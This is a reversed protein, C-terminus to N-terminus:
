LLLRSLVMTVLPLELNDVGDTLGEFLATGFCVGAMSLWATPPVSALSLSPTESLLADGYTVCLLPLAGAVAACFGAGLTGSLTKRELAENDALWSAPLVPRLLTGLKPGGVTVGVTAAAADLIGLAGLGPLFDRWSVVYWPAATQFHFVARHNLVVSLGCGAMLYLHTRVLAADRTDVVGSLLPTLAGAGFTGTCRLAELVACAGVAICWWMGMLAPNIATPFAFAAVALVHFFKRRIIRPVAAEPVALSLGSVVPVVVLWAAVCYLPFYANVSERSPSAMLASVADRVTGDGIV